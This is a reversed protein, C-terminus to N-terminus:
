VAESAAATPIPRSNLRDRFSFNTWVNTLYAFGYSGASNLGSFLAGGAVAWNGTEVVWPSVQGSAFNDFFLTTTPLVTLTVTAPTSNSIGDNAKYTFTDTGSFNNSPTYGFGGTNTLNLAGNTPGNVLIATLGQNDTDTDNALIGPPAVTLTTNGILTYSDNNAVPPVDAAITLTVTAAASNNHGDYAKYTFSDTGSFGGTPTYTFGGNSSLNLTGHSTTTALIATLPAVGDTDNVLVGPAAVTLTTGSTGGYSDNVALPISSQVAVEANAVNM